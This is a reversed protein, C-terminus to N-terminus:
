PGCAPSLGRSRRAPSRLYAAPVDWATAIGLMIDSEISSFFLACTSWAKSVKNLWRSGHERRARSDVASEQPGCGAAFFLM